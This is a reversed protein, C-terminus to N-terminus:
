KGKNYIDKINCWSLNKNYLDFSKIDGIFSGAFNQEIKLGLDETDQGDFTLSEILGQTGGGVSINYPVGIQKEQIDYLGKPVFEKLEKSIFILNSNVYFKYKGTRPEENILDCKNYSDNNVWKILIHQWEDISVLNSDSYEEVVEVSKCDGSLTLLRYGISGDDRIRFGIANDIIDKDKDLEMVDQTSGSYNQDARMQGFGDESDGNGCVKGNSRGFTLFKNEFNVQEQRIIKSYFKDDKNYNQDARMQGFGDESDGNGCVKGNSRGFILFNNEILTVDIVPPSLPVSEQTIEGSVYINNIIIDTEKVETCMQTSASTCASMTNGSFINWFKNEGRTGNYYFFGKNNPYTSNLTDSNIVESSPRLWTSITFGEQYRTPLVQYDYGHLKYYGQLFGGSFNLYNGDEVSKIANIPYINVDTSGSVVNIVM